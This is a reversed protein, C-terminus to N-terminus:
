ADASTKPPRGPGRKAPAEFDPPKIGLSAAAAMIAKKHQIIELDCRLVEREGNDIVSFEEAKAKYIEIMHSNYAIEEKLARRTQAKEQESIAM